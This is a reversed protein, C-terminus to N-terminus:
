QIKAALKINFRAGAKVAKANANAIQWVVPDPAGAAMLAALAIAALFRKV